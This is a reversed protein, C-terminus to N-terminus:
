LSRMTKQPQQVQTGHWILVDSFPTWWLCWGNCSLILGLSQWTNNKKTIWAKELKKPKNWTIIAFVWASFAVPSTKAQSLRIKGQLFPVSSDLIGQLCMVRCFLNLEWRMLQATRITILLHAALIAMNGVLHRAFSCCPSPQAGVLMTEQWEFYKQAMELIKKEFFIISFLFLWM